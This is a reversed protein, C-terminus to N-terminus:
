RQERQQEHDRLYAAIEKRQNLWQEQTMSQKQAHHTQLSVPSVTGGVPVTDFVPLPQQEPASTASQSQYTQVGVIAIVAVSAAIAYQGVTHMWSPRRKVRRQQLSVVNGSETEAQYSPEDELALAIKDTLDLNISAPTEARMVDGILQYRQWQERAVASDVISSLLKEDALEDDILASIQENKIM